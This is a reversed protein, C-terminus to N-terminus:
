LFVLIDETFISFIWRSHLIDLSDKALTNWTTPEAVCGLMQKLVRGYAITFRSAAKLCVGIAIQQRIWIIKKIWFLVSCIARSKVM